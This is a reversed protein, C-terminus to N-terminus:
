VQGRLNRLHFSNSISEFFAAEEKFLIPSNHCNKEPNRADMRLVGPTEKMNGLSRTQSFFEQGYKERTNEVSNGDYM